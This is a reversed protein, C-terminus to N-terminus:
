QESETLKHFEDSMAIGGNQQWALLSEVTKDDLSGLKERSKVSMLLRLCPLAMLEHNGIIPFVNAQQMMWLLTKCAHPGRDAVDGLVYLEDSECFGIKEILEMFMDYHGHIDSIVYKAM